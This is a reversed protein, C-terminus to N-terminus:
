WSAVCFNSGIVYIFKWTSVHEWLMCAFYLWLIIFVCLKWTFMLCSYFRTSRMSWWSCIPSSYQAIIEASFLIFAINNAANVFMNQVLFVADTVTAKNCKQSVATGNDAKVLGASCWQLLCKACCLQNIVVSKWYKYWPKCHEKQLFLFQATGM